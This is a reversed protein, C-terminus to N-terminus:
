DGGSSASLLEDPDTANELLCFSTAYITVSASGWAGFARFYTVHEVGYWAALVLPLLLVLALTGAVITGEVLIKLSYGLAIKTIGESHCLRVIKSHVTNNRKPEVPPDDSLTTQKDKAM